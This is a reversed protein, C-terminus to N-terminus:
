GPRASRMAASGQSGIIRGKELTVVRDAASAVTPDHTVMVITTGERSHLRRFVDVVNAASDPDLNGTPEDALLVAPRNALARAIAVRQREGGSMEAPRRDAQTQLQVLTLLEDAARRRASRDRGTGFMAVEVNDRADLHAILNHLQFVLGVGFRRYHDLHREQALDRGQFRVMGADPHDLAALLSLLTSKGSGSPGGVALWEGSRVTLTLGDLATVPGYRVHLDVAEIIPSETASGDSSPIPLKAITSQRTTM